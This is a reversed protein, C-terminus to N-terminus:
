GTRLIRWSLYLCVGTAPAGGLVTATIGLAITQEALYLPVLVAAAVTSKVAFLATCLQYRRRRVPDRRWTFREGRAMGVALGVAPWGVAMSVLLLVAAGPQWLVAWLYFDVARGTSGALAASLGVVLLGIAASWYARDTCVRVVALVAVAGVAILASAPVRDTLLYAVLFVVRSAVAEAVTRWGGVADFLSMSKRTLVSFSM